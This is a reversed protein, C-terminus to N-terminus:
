VFIYYIANPFFLHLLTLLVMLLAARKHWKFFVAKKKRYFLLGLVVTVLVMIGVLTGTHLRFAGLALYGHILTILLLCLGFPKHVARLVKILKTSAIKRKPFFRQGLRRLWYPSTIVIILLVNIIGLIKYM